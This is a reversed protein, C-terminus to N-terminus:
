NKNRIKKNVVTILRPVSSGTFQHYRCSNNDFFTAFKCRESQFLM